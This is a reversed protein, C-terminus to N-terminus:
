HGDILSSIFEIAMLLLHFQGGGQDRYHKPAAARLSAEGAHVLTLYYTCLYPASICCPQALTSPRLPTRPITCLFRAEVLFSVMEDSVIGTRIKLVVKSETQNQKLVGVCRSGTNGVGQSRGVSMASKAITLEDFSM